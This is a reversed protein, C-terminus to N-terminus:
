KKHNSKKTINELFFCHLTTAMTETSFSLFKSRVTCAARVQDGVVASGILNRPLNILVENSRGSSTTYEILCRQFDKQRQAIRLTTAPWLRVVKGTLILENRTKTQIETVNM